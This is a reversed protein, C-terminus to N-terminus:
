TPFYALFPPTETRCTVTYVNVMRGVTRLIVAARCEQHHLKALVSLEPLKCVGIMLVKARWRTFEMAVLCCNDTEFNFVDCNMTTGHYSTVVHTYM